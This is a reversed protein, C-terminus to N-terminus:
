RGRPCKVQYIVYSLTVGGFLFSDNSVSDGRQRGAEGIRPSRVERSRDALRATESNSGGLVGEDVYLGKVDDLYDTFTFRYGVEMGLVWNNKLWYKIGLGMPLAPQLRKYPELGTLDPNRQGETGIEQLKYTEGDLTAKPNFHFVSVGVALYPSFYHNVDGPVFRLFNFEFQAGAELVHSHFSLNRAQQFPRKSYEDRYSLFGLNAIGKIAIYDSISYRYLVGGAPRIGQLGGGTNLDGFYNSFGLWAGVSQQQAQCDAASVCALLLVAIVSRIMLYM